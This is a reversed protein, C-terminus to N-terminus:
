LTLLESFSLAMLGTLMMVLLFHSLLCFYYKVTNIDHWLSCPLSDMKSEPLFHELRLGTWFGLLAESIVLKTLLPLITFM